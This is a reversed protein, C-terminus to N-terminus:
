QWVGIAKRTLMERIKDLTTQRAQPELVNVPAAVMRSQDAPVEERDMRIIYAPNIVSVGIGVFRVGQSAAVMLKEKVDESVSYATKDNMTITWKLRQM